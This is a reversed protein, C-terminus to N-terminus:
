ASPPHCRQKAPVACPASKRRQRAAPSPWAALPRVVAVLCGACPDYKEAPVTRKSEQALFVSPTAPSPRPPSFQLGVTRAVTAHNSGSSTLHVIDSLISQALAM